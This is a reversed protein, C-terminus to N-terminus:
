ADLSALLAIPDAAGDLPVVIWDAPGACMADIAADVDDAEPFMWPLQTRYCKIAALKTAWVSPPLAIRLGSGSRPDVTYPMDCWLVRIASNPVILEVAAATALHDVHAGFGAPGLVAAPPAGNSVVTEIADAVAKVLGCDPATLYLDAEKNILWSGSPTRRYVADEFGLHCHRVGLIALANMDEARRIAGIRGDSSGALWAALDSPEHPPDSTFISIVEVEHREALMSLIGGLSLAADDLHPSVAVIRSV